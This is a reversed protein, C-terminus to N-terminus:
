CRRLTDSISAFYPILRCWFQSRSYFHVGLILCFAHFSRKGEKCFTKKPTKNKTSKVLCHRYRCRWHLNSQKEFKKKKKWTQWINNKGKLGWLSFLKRVSRKWSQVLFWVGHLPPKQLRDGWLRHTLISNYGNDTEEGCSNHLNRSLEWFCGAFNWLYCVFLSFKKFCGAKDCM